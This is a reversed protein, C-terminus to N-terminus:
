IWGKVAHPFNTKFGQEDLRILQDARGKFFAPANMWTRIDAKEQWFGEPDHEAEGTAPAFEIEPKAGDPCYVLFSRNLYRGSFQPHDFGAIIGHENIQVVPEFEPLYNLYVSWTNEWARLPIKTYTHTFQPLSNHYIHFDKRKTAKRHFCTGWHAAQIYYGNNHDSLKTPLSSLKEIVINGDEIAQMQLKKEIM